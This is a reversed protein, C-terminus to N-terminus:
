CKEIGKEKLYLIKHGTKEYKEVIEDWGILEFCNTELMESAEQVKSLSVSGLTCWSEAQRQLKSQSNEKDLTDEGSGAERRGGVWIGEM